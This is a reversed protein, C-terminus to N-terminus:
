RDLRARAAAMAEAPGAVAADICRSVERLWDEARSGDGNVYCETLATMVMSFLIRAVLPPDMPRFVGLDEQRVILDTLGAVVRNRVADIAMSRDAESALTSLARVLAKNEGAYDFLPRLVDESGQISRGGSLSSFVAQFAGEGFSDTLAVLMGRKSGFHHFILGESVGALAAVRAATMAEYGEAGLLEAAADLIRQRKEAPDRRRSRHPRVAAVRRHGTETM